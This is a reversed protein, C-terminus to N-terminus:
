DPDFWGNAIKKAAEAENEATVRKVVGTLRERVTWTSHYFPVNTAPLDLLTGIALVVVRSFSQAWSIDMKRDIIEWDRPMQEM